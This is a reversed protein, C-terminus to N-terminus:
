NKYKNINKYYSRDYKSDSKHLTVLEDISPKNNIFPTSPM